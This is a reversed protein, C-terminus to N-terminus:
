TNGASHNMELAMSATLSCFCVVSYAVAVMLLVASSFSICCGYCVYLMYCIVLMVSGCVVPLKSYM